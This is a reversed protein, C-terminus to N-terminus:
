ATKGFFGRISRNRVPKSCLPCLKFRDFLWLLCKEHVVHGCASTKLVADLQKDCYICAYGHLDVPIGAQQLKSVDTAEIGTRFYPVVLAHCRVSVKVYPDGSAM